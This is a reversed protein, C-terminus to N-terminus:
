LSKGLTIRDDIALLETVTKALYEPSEQYGSRIWNDKVAAMGGAIFAEAYFTEKLGYRLQFTACGLIKQVYPAACSIPDYHYGASLLLDIFDRRRLWYSFYAQLVSFLSRTELQYVEALLERYLSAIHDLLVAEKSPFHRYFTQRTLDARKIIDTIRIADYPREALLQLLAATIWAKSRAAIAQSVEKTM